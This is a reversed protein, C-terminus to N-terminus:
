HPKQRFQAAISQISQSSFESIKFNWISGIKIQMHRRIAPRHVCQLMEAYSMNQTKAGQVKGVHVGTVKRIKELILVIWYAAERADHDQVINKVVWVLEFIMM